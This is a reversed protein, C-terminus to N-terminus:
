ARMGNSGHFVGRGVVVFPELVEKRAMATRPRAAYAATLRGAAHLAPRFRVGAIAIDQAAVPRGKTAAIFHLVRLYSGLELPCRSRLPVGHDAFEAAAFIAGQLAMRREPSRRM